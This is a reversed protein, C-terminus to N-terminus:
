SPTPRHGQVTRVLEDADSAEAVVEYSEESRYRVHGARLLAQAAAGVRM